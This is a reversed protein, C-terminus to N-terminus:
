ISTAKATHFHAIKLQLMKIKVAPQKMDYLAFASFVAKDREAFMEDTTNFSIYAYLMGYLIDKFAFAIRFAFAKIPAVALAAHLPRYLAYGPICTDNFFYVYV